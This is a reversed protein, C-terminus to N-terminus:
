LTVNWEADLGIVNGKAVYSMATIANNIEEAETLVKVNDEVFYEEELTPITTAVLSENDLCQQQERLSEFISLFFASDARPNDTVFFKPGDLGMKRITAKFAELAAVFQDHSDTHIHFQIRIEGAQNMGTILGKFIQEGNYQNMRKDIKYSADWFLIDCPRKKVEKELHERISEAHLNYVLKVYKGTPVEGDYYLCDGFDSFLPARKAYGPSLRDNRAVEREYMIYRRTWEKTHLELLLDSFSEPRIGKDFLPRMIDILSNCFGSRKTLIAPFQKGRGDPFLPLIRKDWGMFTLQLDVKTVEIQVNTAASAALEALKKLRQKEKKCDSCIYRRGLVYYNEKLGIVKRGPHISYCHVGVANNHKCNPCCPMHGWRLDPLWVDLRTYYHKFVTTDHNLKLKRAIMPIKNSPISWDNEKLFKTLWKEDLGKCRPSEEYKIRDQVAKLVERMVGKSKSGKKKNKDNNIINGDEDEDVDDEDCDEEDDEEVDLTAVIDEPAIERTSGSDIEITVAEDEDNNQEVNDPQADGDDDDGGDHNEGDNAVGDVRTSDGIGNNSNGDNDNSRKQIASRPLFFTNGPRLREAEKKEKQKKANM